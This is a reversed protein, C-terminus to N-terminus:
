VFMWNLAAAIGLALLITLVHGFVIAYASTGDETKGERVGMLVVLRLGIAALMTLPPLGAPVLLLGWIITAAWATFLMVPVFAVVSFAVEALAESDNKM